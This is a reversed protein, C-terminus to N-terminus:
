FCRYAFRKGCLRFHQSNLCEHDMPMCRGAGVSILLLVIWYFVASFDVKGAGLMADVARGILVPGALTFLVMAIATIVAGAMKMRYPKLCVALRKMIWM